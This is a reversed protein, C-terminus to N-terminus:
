SIIKREAESLTDLRKLTRLATVIAMDAIDSSCSVSGDITERSCLGQMAAMVFKEERTLDKGVKLLDGGEILIKM